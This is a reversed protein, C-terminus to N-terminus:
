RTELETTAALLLTTRSTTMRTLVAEVVCACCSANFVAM